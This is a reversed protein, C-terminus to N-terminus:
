GHRVRIRKRESENLELLQSVGNSELLVQTESQVTLKDGVSLALYGDTITGVVVYCTQGVAVAALPVFGIAAEYQEQLAMDAFGIIDLETQVNDHDLVQEQEGILTLDPRLHNDLPLIQFIGKHEMFVAFIGTVNFVPVNLAIAAHYREWIPKCFKGSRLRWLADPQHVAMGIFTAPHVNQANLDM